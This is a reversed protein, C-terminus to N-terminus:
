PSAIPSTSVVSLDHAIFLYTLQAGEAPGRAPQDDPGPHFRGLASVPEDCIILRPNLGPRPRRRHAPRQGGSFEHPYREAHEVTLGVTELLQFVRRKREAETGIDHIRLPEAIINKV